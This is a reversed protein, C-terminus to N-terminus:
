VKVPKKKISVFDPVYTPDNEANNADSILSNLNQELTHNTTEKTSNQIDADRQRKKKKM